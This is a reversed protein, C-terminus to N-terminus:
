SPINFRVRFRQHPSAELAGADTAGVVGRVHDHPTVECRWCIHLSNERSQSLFSSQRQGIYAGRDAVIAPLGSDVRIWGEAGVEAECAEVLGFGTETDVFHRFHM